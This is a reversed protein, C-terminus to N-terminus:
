QSKEFPTRSCCRFTPDFAEPYELGFISCRATPVSGSSWSMSTRFQGFRVSVTSRDPHTFRSSAYKEPVDMVPTCSAFPPAMSVSTRGFVMVFRVSRFRVFSDDRVTAPYELTEVSHSSPFWEETLESFM